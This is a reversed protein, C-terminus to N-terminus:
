KWEDFYSRYVNLAVLTQEPLYNRYNTLDHLLRLTNRYGFIENELNTILNQINRDQYVTADSFVISQPFYNQFIYAAWIDDFRGIFPLVFYFPIAARSLLTNQSNFPLLKSSSYPKNLKPFDLIPKFIIRSMADIDPDGNWLNAQILPTITQSSVEFKFRKDLLELPFGRHWIESNQFPALPDFAVSDVEYLDVVTPRNLYIEDGWNSLPINDDDVSAFIEYGKQYAYIFGINRRQISNWGIADSIQKYNRDQEDPSLYTCNKSQNSFELYENQPTKKDGVILLDWGSISAFGRVAESIPYITTTIIIKRSM